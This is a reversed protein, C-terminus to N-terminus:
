PEYRRAPIGVPQTISMSAMRRVLVRDLASLKEYTERLLMVQDPSIELSVTFGDAPQIADSTEARQWAGHLFRHNQYGRSKGGQSFAGVQPPVGRANARREDLAREVLDTMMQRLYTDSFGFHRRFAVGSRQLAQSEGLPRHMETRMVEVQVNITQGRWDFSLSLTEGPRHPKEHALLAGSLSIDILIARESGLKAGVRETLGIRQLRRQVPRPRFVNTFLAGATLLNAGPLPTPVIQFDISM